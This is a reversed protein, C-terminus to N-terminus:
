QIGKEVMAVLLVSFYLLDCDSLYIPFRLKLKQVAVLFLQIDQLDVLIVTLLLVVRVTGSM